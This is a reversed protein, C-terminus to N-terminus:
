VVSKRDPRGGQSKHYLLVNKMMGRLIDRDKKKVKSASETLEEESVKLNYDQKWGDWKKSFEILANEGRALIEHKVAEVVTKINKKKKERGELISSLLKDHEKELDWIKM